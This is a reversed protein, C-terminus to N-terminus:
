RARRTFTLRWWNFSIVWLGQRRSLKVGYVVAGLILLTLWWHAGMFAFVHTHMARTIRRGEGPHTGLASM